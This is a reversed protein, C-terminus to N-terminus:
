TLALSHGGVEAAVDRVSADLDVENFPWEELVGADLGAANRNLDGPTAFVGSSNAVWLLGLLAAVCVGVVVWARASM